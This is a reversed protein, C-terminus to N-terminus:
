RAHRGLLAGRGQRLHERRSAHLVPIPAHPHLQAHLAAAQPARSLVTPPPGPVRPHPPPTPRSALSHAPRPRPPFPPVGPGASPSAPVRGRGRGRGLGAERGAWRFYALILVAVTLSALSVSYGVTYIMGLRDFVEQAPPSM